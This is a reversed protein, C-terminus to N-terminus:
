SAIGYLNFSDRIFDEEIECYFIHEQLTCFWSIWGGEFSNESM